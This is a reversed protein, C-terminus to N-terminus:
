RSTNGLGGAASGGVNGGSNVPAPDTMDSARVTSGGGDWCEEAMDRTLFNNSDGRLIKPSKRCNPAVRKGSCSGSPFRM